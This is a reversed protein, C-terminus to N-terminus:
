PLKAESLATRFILPFDQSFGKLPGTLIYLASSISQVYGHKSNAVHEAKM